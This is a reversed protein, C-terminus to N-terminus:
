FDTITLRTQLDGEKLRGVRNITKNLEHLKNQFIPKVLAWVAFKLASGFVSVILTSGILLVFLDKAMPSEQSNIYMIMIDYVFFSLKM